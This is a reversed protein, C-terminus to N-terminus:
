ASAYIGPSRGRFVVWRRPNLPSIGLEPLVPQLEPPPSSTPLASAETPPSSAPLPSSTPPPPPSSPQFSEEPPLYLDELVQFDAVFETTIAFDSFESYVTSASSVSSRRNERRAVNDQTGRVPQPNSSSPLPSSNNGQGRATRNQGGVPQTSDRSTPSRDSESHVTNGQGGRQPGSPLTSAPPPHHEDHTTNGRGGEAPQLHSPPEYPPAPTDPHHHHHHHPVSPPSTHTAANPPVQSNPVGSAYSPHAPLCVQVSYSQGIEIPCLCRPCHAVQSPTSSAMTRVSFNELRREPNIRVALPKCSGHILCAPFGRAFGRDSAQSISQRLMFVPWDLGLLTCDPTDWSTETYRARM